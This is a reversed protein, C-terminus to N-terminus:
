IYRWITKKELYKKFDDIYNDSIIFNIGYKIMKNM